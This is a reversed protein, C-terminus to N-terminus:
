RAERWALKRALASTADPSTSESSSTRDLFDSVPETEMKLFAQELTTNEPTLKTHM